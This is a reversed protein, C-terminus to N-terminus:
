PIKGKVVRAKGALDPLAAVSAFGALTMLDAVARDQGDGVELCLAGGSLLFNGAQDIIDRIVDLGDPGGDLASIPEFDRVEPALTPIVATPIYPPNSCIVHFVSRPRFAAFMEGAVLHLSNVQAAKANARATRLAVLNLDTGIVRAGPNEKLLAVAVAGTGTGIELIFPSERDSIEELVVQVLVETEPRPILVGPVTRFPLSWFEKQGVILAVPERKARRQVLGRYKAREEPALPRDFNLYLRLRDVGLCHALLVEADLRPSPVGKERFYGTTWQLVDQVTWRSTPSSEKSM